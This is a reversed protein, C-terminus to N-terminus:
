RSGPLGAETGGAASRGILAVIRGGLDDEDPSETLKRLEKMTEEVAVPDIPQDRV